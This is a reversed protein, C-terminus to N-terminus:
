TRPREVSLWRSPNMNRANAIWGKVYPQVLDPTLSFRYPVFGSDALLLKEAELMLQGRKAPDRERQAQDLLADFKPNRYRQYNMGSDSRGLIGLFNYADNYDGVWAAYGLDYDAQHLKEYAIQPDAQLIQAEIYIPRLMNQIVPALRRNDSSTNTLYTTRLPHAADYGAARMLDQAKKLREPYPTDKFYLEAGGPYNATGPPVLSYAVPEGMRRIDNVVAERNFALNIAERVRVDNFPKRTQNMALYYVALSPVQQLADKMNARLWEIQQASFQNQLDLEGARMRRIAADYDTTPYYNVVDLKVNAADYFRPNKVLTIHDNPIWEKPVFPGNGVFSGVVMWQKGKAEVVHRPVPFTSHHSMLEPLYPAPHELELVLTRPDVAKAALASPPLKGAAIAAANKFDYLMSAYQTATKPDLMRQWAFVFDDATVPKGDSWQHDRIHFTWTLGDESVESSEAAGPIAKGDPGIASLGVIIDNEVNAEWMTEIYQPDLSKPEGGNGRNLVMQGQTPRPAASGTDQATEQRGCSLLLLAGTTLTLWSAARRTVSHV